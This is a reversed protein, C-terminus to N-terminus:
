ASGSFSGNSVFSRRFNFIAGVIILEFIRAHFALWLGCDCSINTIINIVM